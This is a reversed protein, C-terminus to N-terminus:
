IASKLLNIFMNWGCAGIYRSLKKDQEMEKINLDEIFVTSYNDAIYRSIKHLYDQRQFKIHEHLKAIQKM